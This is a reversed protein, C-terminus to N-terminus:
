DKLASFMIKEKFNILGSKSKTKYYQYQSGNTNIWHTLIESVLCVSEKHYVASTTVKKGDKESEGLM